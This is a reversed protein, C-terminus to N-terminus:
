PEQAGAVRCESREAASAASPSALRAPRTDGGKIPEPTAHPSASPQRAGPACAGGGPFRQGPAGGV